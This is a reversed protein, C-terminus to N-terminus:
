ILNQGPHSCTKKSQVGRLSLKQDNTETFCNALIWLEESLM